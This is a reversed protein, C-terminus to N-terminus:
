AHTEPQEPEVGDSQPPVQTSVVLSMELQPVHPLEQEVPTALACATQTLPTQPKEHL